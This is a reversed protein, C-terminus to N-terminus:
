EIFPRPGIIVTDFTQLQVNADKWAHAPLGLKEACLRNLLQERTWGTERAVQPLFCGRRGDITLFIGHMLPDFDLPGNAEKLPGLISLELELEPLEDLMVPQVQFRPDDLVSSAAHRLAVVLSDVAEIRGICGRLAHTFRNHLSVFCGAPESLAPDEPACGPALDPLSAVSNELRRQIVDRAIRLLVLEQDLTFRM